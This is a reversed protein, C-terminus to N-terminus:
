EGALVELEVHKDADSSTLPHSQGSDFAQHTIALQLAAGPGPWDTRHLLSAGPVM